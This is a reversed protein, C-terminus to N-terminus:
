AAVKIKALAKTHTAPLDILNPYGHLRAGLQALWLADAEDHSHGDYRLRRIAEALMQDKGANGKGTAFQKLSAPPIATVHDPNIGSGWFTAHIMGLEVGGHRVSRPLDEIIIHIPRYSNTLAHLSNRWATLRDAIHGHTNPIIGTVHVGARDVVAWGTATLSLDLALIM